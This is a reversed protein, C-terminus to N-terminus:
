EVATRGRPSRVGPGFDFPDAPDAAFARLWLNEWELLDGFGEPIRGGSPVNFLDSLYGGFRAADWEPHGELFGDPVTPNDKLVSAVFAFYAEESDIGLTEMVMERGTYVQQVTEAFHHLVSRDENLSPSYTEWSLEGAAFDISYIRLWGDGGNRADQYDTLFELVREMGPRETVRLWESHFHGCHLMAVNPNTAIVEAFLEEGFNPGGPGPRQSTRIQFTGFPTVNVEGFRGGFLKYDYMYRHTGLIFVADRNEAIIRNAWDIEEQPHDVSFNIFGIRRGGHRMMQHNGGGTPSAATYWARGEFVAPGFNALYDRRYDAGHSDDHNGMVTGHPVDARLLEDMAAKALAWEAPAREPDPGNQVIDGLHVAYRIGEVRRLGSRELEAAAADIGRDALANLAIWRTQAGFLHGTGRPDTVAPFRGDPRRDESYIQTDPLAVFRFPSGQGRAHGAALAAWLLALVVRAATSRWGEVM